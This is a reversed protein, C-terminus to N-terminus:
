RGQSLTRLCEITEALTGASEREVQEARAEYEATLESLIQAEREQQHAALRRCRQAQERLAAPDTM